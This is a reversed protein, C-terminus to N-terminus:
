SNGRDLKKIVVQIQAMAQWATQDIPLRLFDKLGTLESKIGIKELFYRIRRIVRLAQRATERPYAAHHVYKRNYDLDQLQVSILQAGPLTKVLDVVNFSHPSWSKNKHITFTSKHDENMLSPWYGQEYLDEDPVIFILHGGPKVLRWWENLAKSPDHMHELCHASFVYDFAQQVYKTIENADGDGVDFRRANADIPDNGCGIDIGSGKLLSM